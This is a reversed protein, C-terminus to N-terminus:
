LEVVNGDCSKLVVWSDVINKNDRAPNGSKEQYLIGFHSFSCVYVLYGYFIGFTRLIHLIVLHGHFSGLYM